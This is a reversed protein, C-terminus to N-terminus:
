PLEKSFKPVEFRLQREGGIVDASHYKRGHRLIVYLTPIARTIYIVSAPIRYTV